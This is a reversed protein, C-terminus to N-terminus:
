FEDLTLTLVFTRADGILNDIHARENPQHAFEEITAWVVSDVGVERLHAAVTGGGIGGVVPTINRDIEIAKKLRRVIEADPSTPPAADNRQVVDVSISVKFEYEVKSVISYVDDIIDDLKWQPLIRMDMYFVDKGPIINVSDVNSEIKTLEFTSYPPEFLNDRDAYVDHLYEDLYVALYSAARRANVGAPPMSAHAQKGKVTFRLWLISKEAVEIFHGDPTGGDPVIAMDIEKFLGKKVLYALGYDSGTEEDAVLLVAVNYKPKIGLEKMARLAFMSSVVGQGNDESGRGIIWGDETMVPEFPDTDWQSLDGPSVVDMHGILWVTKSTDEGELVTWINPRPGFEPDEADIRNVEFGWKELYGSLVKAAEIEGKGGEGSRPNVPATKIFDMLVQAAEVKHDEFWQRLAERDIM